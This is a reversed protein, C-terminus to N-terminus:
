NVTINGSYKTFKEGELKWIIKARIKTGQTEKTETQRLENKLKNALSQM